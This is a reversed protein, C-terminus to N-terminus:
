NCIRCFNRILTEGAEESSEPHFQVGFINKENHKMGENTCSKSQAILTFDPPVSIMECHDELMLVKETLNQFLISKSLVEIEQWARDEDMLEAKAGHLLGILQHGFCIGLVPLRYDKLWAFMNLIPQTEIVTVLIPAGSLIIGKYKYIDKESVNKWELVECANSKLVAKEILPVKSSGFDIILIM